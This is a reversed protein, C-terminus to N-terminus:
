PVELTKEHADKELKIEYNIGPRYPPLKNAKDM